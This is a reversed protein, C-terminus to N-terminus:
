ICWNHLKTGGFYPVALHKDILYQSVDVNNIKVNGLIRGGYKDYSYNTVVMVSTSKALDIIAQKAQIALEAEKVCSARGLKGTTTYSEAPYEPTDIGLLRISVRDLPVPLSLTTEITDGDYVIIIPLLLPQPDAYVAFSLMM